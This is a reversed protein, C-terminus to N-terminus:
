SAEGGMLALIRDLLNTHEFKWNVLAGDNDYKPDFRQERCLTRIRTLTDSLKRRNDVLGLVNLFRGMVDPDDSALDGLVAEARAIKALRLQGEVRHGSDLFLEKGTLEWAAWPQQVGFTKSKMDKLGGQEAIELMIATATERGVKHYLLAALARHCEVFDHYNGAESEYGLLDAIGELWPAEDTEVAGYEESGRYCVQRGAESHVTVVLPNQPEDTVADM